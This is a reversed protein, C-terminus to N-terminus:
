GWYVHDKNYKERKNDADKPSDSNATVQINWHTICLGDIRAPFKCRKKNDLIRKCPTDTTFKM